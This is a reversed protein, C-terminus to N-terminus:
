SKLHNFGLTIEGGVNTFAGGIWKQSELKEYSKRLRRIAERGEIGLFPRKSRTKLNNGTSVGDDSKEDDGDGDESDWKSEGDDDDDSSNESDGQKSDFGSTEKERRRAVLPMDESSDTDSENWDCSLSADLPPAM